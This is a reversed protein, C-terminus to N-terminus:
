VILGEDVLAKVDGGVARVARVAAQSLKRRRELAEKERRAKTKSSGSPAVGTLIQESDEPTYNVFGVPGGVSPTRPATQKNPKQTKRKRVQLEPSPAPSPPDLEGPGFRPKRVLRPQRQPADKAHNKSQGLHQPRSKSSHYQQPMSPKATLSQETPLETMQNMLGSEMNSPRYPLEISCHPVIHQLEMAVSETERVPNVHFATPSPQAMPATAAHNWWIPLDTESAFFSPSRNTDLRLSSPIPSWEHSTHEFEPASPFGANNSVHHEDGRKVPKHYLVPLPLPMEFDLPGSCLHQIVVDPCAVTENVFRGSRLREPAGSAGASMSSPLSVAQGHFDLSLKSSELKTVWLDSNSKYSTHMMKPFSNAKRIPNRLNRLNREVNGINGKFCKSPTESIGSKRRMFTATDYSPSPPLYCELRTPIHPSSLTIGELSLIESESFAGRGSSEPYIPNSQSLESSQTWLEGGTEDKRTGHNVDDNQSSSSTDASGGDGCTNRFFNSDSLASYNQEENDTPNLTLFEDFFDPGLEEYKQAFADSRQNHLYSGLSPVSMTLTYLALQTFQAPTRV